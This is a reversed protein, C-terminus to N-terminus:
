IQQERPVRQRKNKLVMELSMQRALSMELEGSLLRLSENLVSPFDRLMDSIQDGISPVPDIEDAQAFASKPVVPEVEANNHLVSHTVISSRFCFYQENCSHFDHTDLQEIAWGPHGDLRWAEQWKSQFSQLMNKYTEPIYELKCAIHEADGRFYKVIGIPSKIDPEGQRCGFAYGVTSASTWLWFPCWVRIRNDVPVSRMAHDVTEQWNDDTFKLKQKLTSELSINTCALTALARFQGVTEISHLNNPIRQLVRSGELTTGLHHLKSITERGINMLKLISDSELPIEAKCKKKLRKSAVVFPSSVAPLIEYMDEWAGSVAYCYVVFPRCKGQLLAESSGTCILDPFQISHGDGSTPSVTVRCEGGAGRPIKLLSGGSRNYRVRFKQIEDDRLLRGHKELAQKYELGDLVGFEITLGSLSQTCLEGTASDVIDIYVPAKCKSMNITDNVYYRDDFDQLCMKNPNTKCLVCEGARCGLYRCSHRYVLQLTSRTHEELIEQCIVDVDNDTLDCGRRNGVKHVVKKALEKLRSSEM